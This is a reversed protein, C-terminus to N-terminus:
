VGGGQSTLQLQFATAADRAGEASVAAAIAGMAIRRGTEIALMRPAAAAADNLFVQAVQDATEGLDGIAAAILPYDVILPAAAAVWSAAERERLLTRMGVVAALAAEAQTDVSVLAADKVAAIVADPDVALEVIQGDLVAHRAPDPEFPLNALDVIGGWHGSAREAADFDAASGGGLIHGTSPDIILYRM